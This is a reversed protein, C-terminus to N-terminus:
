RELGVIRASTVGTKSDREEAVGVLVTAHSEGGLAAANAMIALYDATLPSIDRKFDLFEHEDPSM